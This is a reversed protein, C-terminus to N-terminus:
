FISSCLMQSFRKDKPYLGSNGCRSGNVMDKNKTCLFWGAATQKRVVETSPPYSIQAWVLGVSQNVLLATLLFKAIMTVKGDRYKDITNRM